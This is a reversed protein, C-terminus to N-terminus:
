RLLELLRREFGQKIQHTVSDVDHLFMVHVFLTKRDESIDLSLTGPTLSLANALLTIEDDSEASLPVAIIGPRMYRAPTVVDRAVRLNAVFIEWGLFLLFEILKPLKRCYSEAKLPAQALWLVFYGLFFGVAFNLMSLKGNAIAWTFGLFLNWLLPTM